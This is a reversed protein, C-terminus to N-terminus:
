SQLRRYGVTRVGYDPFRFFVVDMVWTIVHPQFCVAGLTNKKHATIAPLRSEYAGRFENCLPQHM